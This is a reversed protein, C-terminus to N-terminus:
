NRKKEQKVPDNVEARGSNTRLTGMRRALSSYIFDNKKERTPVSMGTATRVFSWKSLVEM